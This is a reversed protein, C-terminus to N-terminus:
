WATSSALLPGMCVLIAENRSTRGRVAQVCTCLERKSTSPHMSFLMNPKAPYDWGGFPKKNRAASRQSDDFGSRADAKLRGLLPRAM